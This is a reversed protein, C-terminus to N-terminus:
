LHRVVAGSCAFNVFTVTRSDNELSRALLAPWANRSRHCQRDFFPLNGGGSTFSDGIAAVVLERFNMEREATDTRSGDRVTLTARWRGLVPLRVV